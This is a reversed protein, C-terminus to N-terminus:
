VKKKNLFLIYIRILECVEAVDYAGMTVHCSGGKRWGLTEKMICSKNTHM